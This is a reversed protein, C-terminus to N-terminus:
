FIKWTERTVNNSNAILNDNLSKKYNKIFNKYERKERLYLEKIEQSNSMKCTQYFNKLHQSWQRIEDSVWHRSSIDIRRKLLPFSLDFNYKFINYFKQFSSEASLVSEVDDWTEDKIRIIFNLKNHKNFFRGYEYFSEQQVNISIEALQGFHDSIDNQIVKCNVGQINSFVVDVLTASHATVRTCENICCKLGFSGMLDVISLVVVNNNENFNINWDGCLLILEFKGHMQELLGNLNNKFIEINGQPSRYICVIVTKRKGMLLTAATYEFDRELSTIKFTVPQVGM